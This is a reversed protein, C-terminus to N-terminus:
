TSVIVTLTDPRGLDEWGALDLRLIRDPEGEEIRARYFPGDGLTTERVLTFEIM